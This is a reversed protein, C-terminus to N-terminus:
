HVPLVSSLLSLPVWVKQLFEINEGCARSQCFRLFRHATTPNHLVINFVESSFFDTMNANASGGPSMTRGSESSVSECETTSRSNGLDGGRSGGRREDHATTRSNSLEHERRSSNAPSLPPLSATKNISDHPAQSLSHSSQIVQDISEATEHVPSHAM